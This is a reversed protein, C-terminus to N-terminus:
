GRNYDPLIVKVTGATHPDQQSDPPIYTLVPRLRVPESAEAQEPLDPGEILIAVGDAPWNDRVTVVRVGAPLQLMRAMVDEGLVILARHKTAFRSPPQEYAVDPTDFRGACEGPDCRAHGLLMNECAGSFSAECEPASAPQIDAIM